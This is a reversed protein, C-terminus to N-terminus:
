EYVVTSLLHGKAGWPLDSRTWQEGQQSSLLVGWDKLVAVHVGDSFSFEFKPPSFYFLRRHKNGTQGLCLAREGAEVSGVEM